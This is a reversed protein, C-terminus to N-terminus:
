RWDQWNLTCVVYGLSSSRSGPLRILLLDSVAQFSGDPDPRDNFLQMRIEMEQYARDHCSREWAAENGYFSNFKGDAGARSTFIGVGPCEVQAHYGPLSSGGLTQVHGAVGSWPEQYEPPRYTVECTFPKPSRTARPFPTGRPVYPAPLTGAAPPALAAEVQEPEYQELMCEKWTLGDTKRFRYWETDPWFDRWRYQVPVRDWGYDAALATFDVYYGPPVEDLLQWGLEPEAGGADEAERATLSWPAVRLPEGMSGDQRAARIFVRWFTENGIEERVLQVLSRDQDQFEHRLDIGRGCFHWNMHSQSPQPTDDKLSKWASNLTDLFDWGTELIVRRRLAIFSDDVQDSLQLQGDGGDVGALHVLRSSPGSPASTQTIETYLSPSGSTESARAQIHAIARASVPAAGWAPDGVPVDASYIERSLGWADRSSAILYTREGRNHVTVLARGDPAWTPASGSGFLGSSSVRLATQAKRIEESHWDLTSVQVASHGAQRVTYALQSGDPSWAPDAEDADPSNTVSTETGAEEGELIRLFIGQSGDRYSTFAIMRGDPSWAPDYDPSPSNTLRRINGGDSDMVYIDLNGDRYSEFATKNGDPSQTPGADFGQHQTLRILTDGELDLKYVDWNGGRRSAFTVMGGVPSWTPSRDEMAHTTLRLVELSAENIAYIDTNGNRLLTFAVAAGTDSPTPSPIAMPRPKPTHTPQQAPPLVVTSVPLTPRSPTTTQVFAVGLLIMTAINAVVLLLPLRVTRAVFPASRRSALAIRSWLRTALRRTWGPPTQQAAMAPYYIGFEALESIVPSLAAIM